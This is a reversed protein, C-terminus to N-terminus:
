QLAPEARGEHAAQLSQLRILVRTAGPEVTPEATAHLQRLYAAALRRRLPNPPITVNKDAAVSLVAHEPDPREIAVRVTADDAAAADLYPSVQVALYLSMAIAQDMCIFRDNAPLEVVMRDREVGAIQRLADVAESVLECLAVQLIADTVAVIRYAAAMCQVHEEIFRVEDRRGAPLMRKQLNILSAIIQFNNKVRHHLERVFADHDLVASSLAV